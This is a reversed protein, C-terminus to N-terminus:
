IEGVGRGPGETKTGTALEVGLEGSEIVYYRDGADGASFLVDGAALEVPQLSLALREVARPPLPAFVPIGRLLEVHAPEGRDRATQKRWLLETLIPLFLGTVALAARIGIIATLLPAQITALGTPYTIIS